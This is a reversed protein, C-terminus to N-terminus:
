LHTEYISNVEGAIHFFILTRFFISTSARVDMLAILSKRIMKLSDNPEYRGSSLDKRRFGIDL